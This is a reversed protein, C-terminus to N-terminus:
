PGVPLSLVVRGSLGEATRSLQLEQPRAHAGQRAETLWTRLQETSAGTLTLTARDGLVQLKGRSGLRDTAAKLAQGAQATSVPPLGKLEKAEAAVRQMQLLDQEVQEIQAPVQRWTQLVPSIGVKWLLLLGVAAGALAVLRRDRDSLAAWQDRAQQRAPALWDRGSGRTSDRLSADSM